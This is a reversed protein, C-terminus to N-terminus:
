VRTWAHLRAKNLTAATSFQKGQKAIPSSGRPQLTSPPKRPTYATTVIPGTFPPQTPPPAHPPVEFGTHQAQTPGALWAKRVQDIQEQERMRMYFPQASIHQFHLSRLQQAVLRQRRGRILLLYLAGGFAAGGLHGWHAVPSNGIGVSCALDIALLAPVVYKARYQGPLFLLRFRMNPAICALVVTVGMLSGSAGVAPVDYSRAVVVLGSPSVVRTNRPARQLLHPSIYNCYLIHGLSSAGGAGAYLLATTPGGLAAAMMPLLSYMVWTNVALHMPQQHSVASTLLTYVRGEQVNQLSATWQQQMRRMRAGWVPVGSGLPTDQKAQQWLAFVFVHVGVLLWAWKRYAAAEESSPMMIQELLHPNPCRDQLGGGTGGHVHLLRLPPLQVGQVARRRVTQVGFASSSCSRWQLAPVGSMPVCLCVRGVPAVAALAVLRAAHQQLAGVAAGRVRLM